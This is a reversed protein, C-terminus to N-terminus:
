RLGRRNEHKPSSLEPGSAASILGARRARAVDEMHTAPDPATRALCDLEVAADLWASLAPRAEIARTIGGKPWWLRFRLWIPAVHLSLLSPLPPASTAAELARLVDELRPGEEDGTPRLLRRALFDDVVAMAHRHLTRAGLDHPYADAFPHHAALYELMVRSETLVLDGHVLLPIRGSASYDHVGEPKEGVM